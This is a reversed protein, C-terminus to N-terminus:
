LLVNAKSEFANAQTCKVSLDIDIYPFIGTNAQAQSALSQHVGVWRETHGLVGQVKDERLQSVPEHDHTPGAPYCLQGHGAADQRSSELHGPVSARHGQDGEPGRHRRRPSPRVAQVHSRGRLRRLRCCSSINVM